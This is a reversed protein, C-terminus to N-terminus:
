RHPEDQCPPQSKAHGGGAKTREILDQAAAPGFVRALDSETAREKQTLRVGARTFTQRLMAPALGLLAALAYLSVTAPSM